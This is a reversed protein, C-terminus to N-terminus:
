TEDEDKEMRELERDTDTQPANLWLYLCVALLVLAAILLFRTM